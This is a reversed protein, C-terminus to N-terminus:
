ISRNLSLLNTPVPDQSWQVPRISSNRQSTRMQFQTKNSSYWINNKEYVHLYFIYIYNFQIKNYLAHHKLSAQWWCLTLFFHIIKHIFLYIYNSIIFITYTYIYFLIIINILENVALDCLYFFTKFYTARLAMDSQLKWDNQHQTM